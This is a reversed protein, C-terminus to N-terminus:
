PAVGLCHGYYEKNHAIVQDMWPEMLSWQKDVYAFQEETMVIM